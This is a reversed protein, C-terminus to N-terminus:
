KGEVKRRAKLIETLRDPKDTDRALELYKPGDAYDLTLTRYTDGDLVLLEIKRETVSNAIADRLRDKNFARNNVAVVKMKPSLGAKDAASGPILTSRVVGDNGFAAGISYLENFGGGEEEETQAKSPKPASQLRYGLAGAFEGPLHDHVKNVLNYFFDEWNYEATAHLAKLMDARAFPVVPGPGNGPGFFAACFDDLSKKGDTLNRIVADAEMWWLAGEDYYDQGRRLMGWSASSARLTHSARATDELPRWDRGTRGMMWVLDGALAQRYHDETWMGSRVCLVLGLYQTLGEYVWLMSTDLPSNFEPRVMGEPRRYKGCWAHVYEHPLLYGVWGLLEKEELLSREGVGNYSSRGHELGNSGIANSCTVLFHYEDFPAGGFMLGGETAVHGYTDILSQPIQIAGESESTLHLHVPPLDQTTLPISRLYQGFIAPSDFLQALPLPKFTTVGDAVAESALSTALKWDQPLRLSAQAPQTDCNTGEPYLVSTNWNLVGLWSNGYSDVGASNTSPQNCLYVLEARLSKLGKANKLLVRNVELPDREWEVVTGDEAFFKMGAINEVPGGPAHTGQIWKPYWLVLNEPPNTYTISSKLLGRGIDTADVAVTLPAGQAFAAPAALLCLAGLLLVRLQPIM